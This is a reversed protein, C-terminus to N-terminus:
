EFEFGCIMFISRFHSQFDWFRLKFHSLSALGYFSHVQIFIFNALIYNAKLKWKINMEFRKKMKKKMRGRGNHKPETRPWICCKLIINSVCFSSTPSFFHCFSLKNWEEQAKSRRGAEVNFLFLKWNSRIQNQTPNVKNITENERKDKPSKLNDLELVPISFLLGSFFLLNSNWSKKKKMIPSHHVSFRSHLQYHFHFHNWTM